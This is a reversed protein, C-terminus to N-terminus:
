NKYEIYDNETFTKNLRFELDDLMTLFDKPNM